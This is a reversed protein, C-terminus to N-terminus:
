VTQCWRLLGVAVPAMSSCLVVLDQQRQPGRDKGGVPRVIREPFGYSGKSGGLQMQNHRWHVVGVFSHKPRLDSRLMVAESAAILIGPSHAEAVGSPSRSGNCHPPPQEATRRLRVHGCRNVMQAAPLAEM